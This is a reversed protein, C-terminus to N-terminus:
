AVAPNFFSCLSLKVPLGASTSLDGTKNHLLCRVIQRKGCSSCVENGRPTRFSVSNWAQEGRAILGNGTKSRTSVETPPDLTRRPGVKANAESATRSIKTCSNRRRLKPRAAASPAGSESGRFWLSCVNETAVASPRVIATTSTIVSTFMTAALV